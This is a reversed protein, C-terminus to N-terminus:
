ILEHDLKNMNYRGLTKQMQLYAAELEQLPVGFSEGEELHIHTPPPTICM